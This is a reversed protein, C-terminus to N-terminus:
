VDQTLSHTLPIARRLQADTQRMICTCTTYMYKHRFLCTRSSIVSGALTLAHTLTVTHPHTNTDCIIAVGKICAVRCVVSDWYQYLNM